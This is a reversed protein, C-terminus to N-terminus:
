SSVEEVAEALPRTGATIREFAHYALSSAHHTDAVLEGDRVVIEGGVLVTDVNSVDMGWVVAGIPDNVPAINPRDTRLLVVDAQKGVTLTGTTEGLGVAQAGDCTAYRIVERTTLLPPVGSRGALKLDFSGAHQMSQFTRMQAFLEGPTRVEDDVGLGPRIGHDILQQVPPAGRGNAMESAPTSSLSAGQAVIADFDDGGLHVGHVLTVDSGLMGRQGMETVIGRDGPDTGVHHHIRLGLERATSWAAALEDLTLHDGEPTGYAITTTPSTVPPSAIIKRLTDTVETHPAWSPSAHVLVTRAGAEAHAQLAAETYSADRQIDSFDVVTTIGARLAGLLAVLTAAYVDEPQIRQALEELRASSDGAPSAHAISGDDAVNRLLTRWAHRHTDVMGPMVITNTADVVEAGRPRLGRGVDAIRGDAILVDAEAFNGVRKDLSLVCGGKLLMGSLTLDRHRTGTRRKHHRM